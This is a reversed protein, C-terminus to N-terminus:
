TVMTVPVRRKKISTILYCFKVNKRINKKFQATAPFINYMIDVDHFHTWSDVHSPREILRVTMYVVVKM